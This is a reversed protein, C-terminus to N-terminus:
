ASQCLAVVLACVFFRQFISGQTGIGFGAPDTAFLKVFSAGSDNSVWIGTQGDSDSYFFYISTASMSIALGAQAAQGSVIDPMTTTATVTGLDSRITWTTGLTTDHCIARYLGGLIVSGSCQGGTTTPTFLTAAATWESGTWNISRSNTFGDGGGGFAFGSGGDNAFITMFYSTVNAASITTDLAWTQGDDTSTLSWVNNAADRGFFTCLDQTEACRFRTNTIIVNLLDVPASDYVTSWSAAGDTSRRIRFVAGGGDNGGALVTGNMTVAYQAYNATASPNAGCNAWTDGSDTSKRCNSGDWGYWTDTTSWDPSIIRACLSPAQCLITPTLPVSPAPGNAAAGFIKNVSASESSGIGFAVMGAIALGFFLRKMM